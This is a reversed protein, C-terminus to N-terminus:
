REATAEALGREFFAVATDVDPVERWSLSAGFSENWFAGERPSWPGVYLYPEDHGSDGPIGGYNVEAAQTAVDFHEPWLQTPTMDLEPHASRFAAIAEDSLAFWRAIDAAARPLLPLPDDLQLPTTPTYVETPAGAEIRLFAALDALSTLPTRREGTPQEVVLQLGEVRLRQEGGSGHGESGDAPPAPFWPTGFGGDTARLGIRGTAAHLSASLVHEAVAQLALRTTVLDDTTAM